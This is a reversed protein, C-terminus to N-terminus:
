RRTQQACNRRGRGQVSRHDSLVEFYLELCEDHLDLNRRDYCHQLLLATRAHAACAADHRAARHSLERKGTPAQDAARVKEEWEWLSREFEARRTM